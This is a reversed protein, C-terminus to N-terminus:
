VPDKREKYTQYIVKGTETDKTIEWIGTFKNEGRGMERKVRYVKYSVKEFPGFSIERVLESEDDIDDAM